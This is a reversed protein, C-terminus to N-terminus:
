PIRNFWLAALGAGGLVLVLAAAAFWQTVEREQLTEGVRSGLGEYVASLEASTPAEFFRGGTMDAIQGLTETDPPVPLTQSGGMGDPVDVTGAQTGLAITYIPMGRAAATSAADLPEASGTSSKGDSLLVAAVLPPETADDTAGPTPSPSASPAALAPQGPTGAELGAADLALNIADGLATGGDARLADLAAQLQIRDTTPSVILRAETSFSVLAVRYDDPLRDLFDTAAAKAAALRDPEVDTALMSRSTDMALVVTAEERAVPVTMSPRALAVALAAVAALYFATPLHRRWSPRRPVLNELLAVNTFRVVYRARRRQLLLYAVIGAPVLLLALLFLPEAFTM